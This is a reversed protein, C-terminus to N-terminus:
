YVSISVKKQVDSDGPGRRQGSVAIPDFGLGKIMGATYANKTTARVERKEGGKDMERAKGEQDKGKVKGKIDLKGRAGSEKKGVERAKMVPKMGEKDRELLSMLARDATRKSMKRAAKAQGERGINETVFLTRPDVQTDNVVHGSVIYTASGAVPEPKLGWQRSPDYAPKRKPASTTSLGM